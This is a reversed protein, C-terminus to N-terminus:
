KSALLDDQCLTYGSLLIIQCVRFEVCHILSLEKARESIKNFDIESMFYSWIAKAIKIRKEKSMKQIESITYYKVPEKQKM